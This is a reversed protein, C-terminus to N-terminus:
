TTSLLARSASMFSAPATSTDVKVRTSKAPLSRTALVPASPMRIFSPVAMLLLRSVSPLTMLLSLSPACACPPYSLPQTPPLHAHQTNGGERSQMRLRLVAPMHEERCAGARTTGLLRKILTHQYIACGLILDSGWQVSRRFRFFPLICVHAHITHTITMTHDSRDAAGRFYTSSMNKRRAADQM